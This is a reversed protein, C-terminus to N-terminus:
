VQKKVCIRTYLELYKQASEGWSWRELMGRVVLRRWRESDAFVVLAREIAALMAAATYETFIFGTGRDHILDYDTITDALGGTSRVIPVTGYRLSYLQNLGCPEYKSPMLFMDVGAEIQHALRNDFGLKAAIKEPYRDRLSEFLQHYKPQGTGLVVMQLDSAAIEEIAEGILDFGKQDALRSIIGILPIRGKRKPLKMTQLLATKCAAKGALDQATYREPILPDTEPNWEDYDIGNVIGYLDDARNRLIGELGYGYEPGSQIERAYTVSVTSVLDATLIGIKMLNVKGWFEFPSSPSHYKADIGAWALVEKEYL